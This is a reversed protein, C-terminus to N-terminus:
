NGSGPSADFKLNKWLFGVDRNRARSPPWSLTNSAKACQEDNGNAHTSVAEKM